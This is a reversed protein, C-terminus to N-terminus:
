ESLGVEKNGEEKGKQKDSSTARERQLVVPYRSGLLPALASRTPRVALRPAITYCLGDYKNKERAVAAVSSSEKQEGEGNEQEAGEQQIKRPPLSPSTRHPAAASPGEEPRQRVVQM